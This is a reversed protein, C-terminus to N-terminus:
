NLTKQDLVYYHNIIQYIEKEKTTTRNVYSKKYRYGSSRLDIM